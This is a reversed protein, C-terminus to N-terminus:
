KGQGFEQRDDKVAARLRDPMDPFASLVRAWNPIEFAGTPDQRVAEGAPIILEAFKESMVEEEHRDLQLGNMVADASYQRIADQANRLYASRITTFHEAHLTTGMAALTRFVSILIDTAM